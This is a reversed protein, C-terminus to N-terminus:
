VTVASAARTRTESRQVAAKPEHRLVGGLPESGQFYWVLAACHLLESRFPICLTDLNPVYRAEAVFDRKAALAEAFGAVMRIQLKRRQLSSFSARSRRTRLEGCPQEYFMLYNGTQGDDPLLRSKAM